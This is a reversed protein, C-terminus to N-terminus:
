FLCRMSSRTFPRHLPLGLLTTAYLGAWNELVGAPHNRMAMLDRVFRQFPKDSHLVAGGSIEFVKMVASLCGAIAYSAEYRCQARSEGTIEEGALAQAYFAGWTRPIRARADKVLTVAEALRIHTLNFLPVLVTM